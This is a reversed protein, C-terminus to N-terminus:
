LGIHSLSHMRVFGCRRCTVLAVRVDPSGSATAPAGGAIHCENGCLEWLHGECTPCRASMLGLRTLKELVARSEFTAPM